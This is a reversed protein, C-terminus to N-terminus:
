KKGLNDHVGDSMLLIYDGEDCSVSYLRLNGLDPAGNPLQPGIRGGPDNVSHINQRNGTTIDSRCESNAFKVHNQKTKAVVAM